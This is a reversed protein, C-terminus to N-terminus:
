KSLPPNSNVLLNYETIIQNKTLGGQRYNINCIAGSLGTSGISVTDTEEYLPLNLRAQYFDMHKVLVGNVFLDAEYTNYNFVFNNWKQGPLSIEFYHASNTPDSDETFYVKYVDVHKPGVVLPNTTSSGSSTPHQVITNVYYISPKGAGYSFVMMENKNTFSNTQVNM